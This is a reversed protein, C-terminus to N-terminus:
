ANPAGCSPCRLVGPDMPNGCYACRIRRVLPAGAAGADAASKTWRARSPGLTMQALARRRSWEEQGAVRATEIEEAVGRPDRIVAYAAPPSSPGDGSLRIARNFLVRPAALDYFFFNSEISWDGGTLLEISKLVRLVRLNTLVLYGRSIKWVRLLREGELFDISDRAAVEIPDPTGDVMDPRSRRGPSIPTPGARM